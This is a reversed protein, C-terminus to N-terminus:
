EHLPFQQLPSVKGLMGLMGKLKKFTEEDRLKFYPNVLCVGSFAIQKQAEVFTALLGGMSHGMMFVPTGGEGGGYRELYEKSFKILDDRLSTETELKGFTGGSRGFGVHEMGAFEYGCEALMKAFFCYHVINAGYGHNFFVIGKREVGEPVPYRYTSIRHKEPLTSTFGPLADKINGDADLDPWQFAKFDIFKNKFQMDEFL